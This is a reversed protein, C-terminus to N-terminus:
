QWVGELNAAGTLLKYMKRYGTETLKYSIDADYKGRLYRQDPYSENDGRVIFWDDSEIVLEFNSEVGNVDGHDLVIVM